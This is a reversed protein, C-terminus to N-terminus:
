RTPRPALAKAQAVLEDILALAQRPSLEDVEVGALRQALALLQPDATEVPATQIPAADSGGDFLDLQRTALANMLDGRKGSKEFQDLLKRARDVVPQPLGALRAVAVGHSRSTPGPQLRHVFIVEQGWERVAVHANKLRPLRQALHTLEHYHTACLCLPKAVDHLREILAWAIALGDWTSTGRGIEDLVVLTRPTARQLIEATERMEVLFTSAGEAIDDGAGIRTLVGDLVGIVAAEAPVYSGAQALIVALAVQRMLTSKGAMNPGTILLLQAAELELSGCAAAVAADGALVVDNPVFAGHALTQELVPHRSGKLWVLPEDVWRPACWGREAALEAFGSHVDLEALAHAIRRLAGREAAVAALLERYLGQECRLREAEASQVKREFDALEPTVYREANKLTQRRHYHAPVNQAKALSIEIGYGSNRNFAVKLTAIGTERRQTEEYSILWQESNESLQVLEDLQASYGPRIVGGDAVLARPAEALAQQLHAALAEGGRLDAQLGAIELSEVALPALLDQLGPLSALTQRLAALERPLALGATARTAVRAVDCGLGLQQRLNQRAPRDALLAAVAGNRRELLRRDALPAQLLQRLARAGGVTSTRDVAHLLSGQRRGHRSTSLLELHQVAERPLQLHALADLRKPAGLWDQSKPRVETLYQQLLGLAADVEAGPRPDAAIRQTRPVNAAATVGDLWSASAETVVLERPELRTLLVALAAPHRVEAVALEGTSVDAVALGLSAQGKGGGGSRPASALAVLHHARRQDLSEPELVVGPTIVHTVGRQVIGKAQAPDELQEVIACRRGAELAKQVHPGLAHYPFGCMPIPRADNKNRSTLTLDLLRTADLADEFFLEYFDGLRFLVLADPHARKAEVVQRM